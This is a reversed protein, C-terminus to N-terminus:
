GLKRQEAERWLVIDLRRLTTVHPRGDHLKVSELVEV